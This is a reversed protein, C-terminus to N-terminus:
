LEIFSLYIFVDTQLCFDINEPLFIFAFKLLYYFTSVQLSTRLTILSIQFAKTLDRHFNM